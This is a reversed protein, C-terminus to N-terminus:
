NGYTVSIKALNEFNSKSDQSNKATFIEFALLTKQKPTFIRSNRGSHWLNMHEYM